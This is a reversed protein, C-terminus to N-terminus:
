LISTTQSGNQFRLCKWLVPIFMKSWHWMPILDFPGFPNSGMWDVSCVGYGIISGGSDFQSHVPQNGNWGSATCDSYVICRRYEDM